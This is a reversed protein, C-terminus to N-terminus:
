FLRWAICLHKTGYYRTKTFNGLKPLKQIFAANPMATSITEADICSECLGQFLNLTVVPTNTM